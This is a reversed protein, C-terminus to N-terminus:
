VKAFQLTNSLYYAINPITTSAYQITKSNSDMIDQPTGTLRWKLTVHTYYFNDTVEIANDPNIEQIHSNIDNTKQIFSRDIYGITYDDDTPIPMHSEAFPQTMDNLNKLLKLKTYTFLNELQESM